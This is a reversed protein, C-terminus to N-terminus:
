CVLISISLIITITGSRIVGFILSISATITLELFCFAAIHISAYKADVTSCAFMVRFAFFIGAFATFLKFTPVTLPFFTEHRVTVQFTRVTTFTNQSEFWIVSCNCSDVKREKFCFLDAHHMTVTGFSKGTHSALNFNAFLAGTVLTVMSWLAYLCIFVFKTVAVGILLVTRIRTSVAFITCDRPAGIVLIVISLWKTYISSCTVFLRMLATIAWISEFPTLALVLRIGDHRWTSQFAWIIAFTTLTRLVKTSCLPWVPPQLEQVFRM